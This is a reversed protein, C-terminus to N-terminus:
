SRRRPGGRGPPRGAAAPTAGSRRRCTPVGVEPFMEGMEQRVKGRFSDAILAEVRDSRGIIAAVKESLAMPLRALGRRTGAEMARELEARRAPPLLGLAQRVMPSTVSRVVIQKQGPLVRAVVRRVRQEHYASTFMLLGPRGLAEAMRQFSVVETATRNASPWVKIREPPAGLRTLIEAALLCGARPQRRLHGEASLFHPPPAGDWGPAEAVALAAAARAAVERLCQAPDMNPEWKGMVALAGPLFGLERLLIDRMDM